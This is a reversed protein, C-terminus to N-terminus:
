EKYKLLRIYGFVALSLAYWQPVMQYRCVSSTGYWVSGVTRETSRSEERTAQRNSHRNTPVLHYRLSMGKRQCYESGDSQEFTSLLWWVFGHNNSIRSHVFFIKPSTHNARWWWHGAFDKVTQRNDYYWWQGMCDNLVMRGVMGVSGIASVAVHRFNWQSM